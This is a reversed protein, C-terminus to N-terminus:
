VRSRITKTTLLAHDEEISDYFRYFFDDIRDEM